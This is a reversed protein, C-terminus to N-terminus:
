GDAGGGRGWDDGAALFAELAELLDVALEDPLAVGDLEDFLRAHLRAALDRLSMM